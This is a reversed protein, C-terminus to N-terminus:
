VHQLSLTVPDKVRTLLAVAILLCVGGTAVAIMRDNHFLHLVIWGFVLASVIEPVVVFFNFIGMYVGTRHPPLIAALIAYPMSLIGAWAMGVGTMSLLLIWKSHVFLVSLLGLAGATLCVMHTYKRGFRRVLPPLAFSFAFCVFNYAASCLGAWEIGARYAPSDPTNSGFVNHAVAPGFYLWMCFLGLYSMLQVLGIRLM